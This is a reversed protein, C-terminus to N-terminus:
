LQIEQQEKINRLWMEAFATQDAQMKSKIGNVNGNEDFSLSVTEFAIGDNKYYFPIIMGPEASSYLFLMEPDAMLDGNLEYYHALSIKLMPLNSVKTVGVKEVILPMFGNDSDLKLYDQDGMRRIIANFIEATQKSLFKMIM